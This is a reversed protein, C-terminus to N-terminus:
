GPSSGVGREFEFDLAQCVKKTSASSKHGLMKSIKGDPCGRNIAQSALSHRTGEYCSVKVGAKTRGQALLGFGDM